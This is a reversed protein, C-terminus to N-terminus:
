YDSKGGLSHEFQLTSPLFLNVYVNDGDTTYVMTKALGHSIGHDIILQVEEAYHPAGTLKLLQTNLKVWKNLVSPPQQHGEIVPTAM